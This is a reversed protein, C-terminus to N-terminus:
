KFMTDKDDIIFNKSLNIIKNHELSVNGVSRM